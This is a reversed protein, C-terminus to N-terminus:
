TSPAQAHSTPVVRSPTDERGWGLGLEGFAGVPAPKNNQTGWLYTPTRPARGLAEAQPKIPVRPRQLNPQTLLFARQSLSPESDRSQHGQCLTPIQACCVPPFVPDRLCPNPHRPWLQPNSPAWSSEEGLRRLPTAQWCSSKPRRAKLVPLPDLGTRGVQPDKNCGDWSTLGGDREQEQYGRQCCQHVDTSSARRDM